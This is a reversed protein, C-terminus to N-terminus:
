RCPVSLKGHSIISSVHREVVECIGQSIAEEQCNGASPGNFENIMFFWNFPVLVEKGKTLNYGEDM